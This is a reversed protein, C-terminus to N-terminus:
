KCQIYTLQMREEKLEDMTERILGMQKELKWSM